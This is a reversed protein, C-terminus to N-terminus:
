EEGIDCCRCVAKAKDDVDNITRKVSLSKFCVFFGLLAMVGSIDNRNLYRYVNPSSSQQAHMYIYIHFLLLLVLSFPLCNSPQSSSMCRRSVFNFFFFFVFVINSYRSFASRRWEIKEKKKEKNNNNRRTGSKKRLTIEGWFFSLIPDANNAKRKYYKKTKWFLPAM